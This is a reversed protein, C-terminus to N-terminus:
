PNAHDRVVVRAGVKVREYLDVVDWDIMRICGSSVKKGITSPESTGHIRYLTDKGDQYLYMARAGLPNRGGPPMGEKYKEYSAIRGIQEQTPHWVPWKAKRGVVAEGSWTFGDKGVGVGYRMAEGKGTVLYLYRAKTDIVITGVPEVSAFVVARRRFRYDVLEIDSRFVAFPEKADAINGWLVPLMALGLVQRRRIRMQTVSTQLQAAAVIVWFWFAAVL